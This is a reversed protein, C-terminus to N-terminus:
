LKAHDIISYQFYLSCTRWFVNKHLRWGPIHFRFCMFAVLKIRLQLLFYEVAEVDRGGSVCCMINLQEAKM